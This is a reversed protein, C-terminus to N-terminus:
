NQRRGLEPFPLPDGESLAGTELLVEQLRAAVSIIAMLPPNHPNGIYHITATPRSPAVGAPHENDTMSSARRIQM